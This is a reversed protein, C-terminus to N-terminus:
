SCVLELVRAVGDEENSPATFSALRKVAESANGMAASVGAAEFMELDNFNDGMALISRKEIGLKQALRALARGKGALASSVEVDTPSTLVTSVQWTSNIYSNLADRAPTDNEQIWVNEAGESERVFRVIDDVVSVSHHIYEGIPTGEYPRLRGEFCNQECYGMGGIYVSYLLGRELAIRTIGEADDPSLLESYLPKETHDSIVAGNLEQKSSAAGDTNLATIVAGNSTIFYRAGKLSRVAGPIGSLPRGTVFVVNIGAAAAAEIAAKTRPTVRKDNTFVTGDLDLAVLRISQLLAKDPILTDHM